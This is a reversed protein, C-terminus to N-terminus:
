AIGQNTAFDALPSFEPSEVELLRYAETMSRVVRLDPRTEEGSIQFMRVMGYVEARPAVAIRLFSAPFAPPLGALEMVQRSSVEFETVGTFDVIGRCPPHSALYRATTQYLDRVISDTLQGTTTLRLINNKRDFDMVFGM